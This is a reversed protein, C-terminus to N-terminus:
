SVKLVFNPEKQGSLVQNRHDSIARQITKMSPLNIGVHQFAPTIVALLFAMLPGCYDGTSTARWRAPSAAAFADAAYCIFRDRADKVTDLVESFLVKKVDILDIFDKLLEFEDENQVNIVKRVAAIASDAQDAFRSPRPVSWILQLENSLNWTRRTLSRILADYASDPLKVRENITVIIRDKQATTYQFKSM